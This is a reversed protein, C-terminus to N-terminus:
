KTFFTSIDEAYLTVRDQLKQTTLGSTLDPHLYFKLTHYQLDISQSSARVQPNFLFLMILACLVSKVAFNIYAKM